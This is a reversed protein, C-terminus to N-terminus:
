RIWLSMPVSDLQKVESGNARLRGQVASNASSGPCHASFVAPHGQLWVVLQKEQVGNHTKCRCVEARSSNRSTTHSAHAHVTVGSARATAACPQLRGANCKFLVQSGLRQRNATDITVVGKAKSGQTTSSRRAWDYGAHDLEIRAYKLLRPQPHADRRAIAFAATPFPFRIGLGIIAAVFWGQRGIAACIHTFSILLSVDYDNEKRAFALPSRSCDTHWL